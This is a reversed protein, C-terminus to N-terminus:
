IVVGLNHNTTSKLIRDRNRLIGAVFTGAVNKPILYIAPINLVPINLVPFHGSSPRINANM